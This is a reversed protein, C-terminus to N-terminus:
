PQPNPTLILLDAGVKAHYNKELAQIVPAPWCCNKALTNGGVVILSYQHDNIQQILNSADWLGATYLEGYEFPQYYILQGSLVIMDMYDDSLVIGKQVAAQIDRAISPYTAMKGELNQRSQQYSFYSSTFVWIAQLFFIALLFYKARNKLELINQLAL